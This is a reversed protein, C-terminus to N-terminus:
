ADAEEPTWIQLRYDCIDTVICHLSLTVNWSGAAVEGAMLGPSAEHQSVFLEQLPDHRHCAGRYGQADDLSLTILNKLPLHREARANAQERQEPLIYIEYSDQLLKVAQERDELVKPAYEFRFNLRSCSTNLEFPIRIHTRSDEPTVRGQTDLLKLANM